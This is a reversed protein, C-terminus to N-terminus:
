LRTLSQLTCHAFSVLFGSVVTCFQHNGIVSAPLPQKRIYAYMIQTTSQWDCSCRFCHPYQDLTIHSPYSFLSPSSPNPALQQQQVRVGYHRIYVSIQLVLLQWTTDGWWRPLTFGIEFGNQFQQLVIPFYNKCDPVYNHHWRYTHDAKGGKKATELMPDVSGERPIVCASWVDASSPSTHEDVQWTSCHPPLRSTLTVSNWLSDVYTRCTVVLDNATDAQRDLLGQVLALNYWKWTILNGQWRTRQTEQVCLWFLWFIGWGDLARNRTFLCTTGRPQKNSKLLSEPAYVTGATAQKHALTLQMSCHIQLYITLSLRLHM